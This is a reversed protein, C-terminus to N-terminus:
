VPPVRSLSSDIGPKRTSSVVSSNMSAPVVLDPERDDSLRGVEDRRVLLEVGEAVDGRSYVENGQEGRRDHRLLQRAAGIRDDEVHLDAVAGEHLGEVVRADEGLLHEVEAAAGALLDDAQQGVHVLREARATPLASSIRSAYSVTRPWPGGSRM